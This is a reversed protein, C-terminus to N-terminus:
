SACPTISAAPCRRRWTRPGPPTRPSSRPDVHAKAGAAVADHIQARVFGAAAPRVLHALDGPTDSGGAQYGRASSRGEVFRDYVDRHVYIREIACCSQGSNFFAGDALNEICSGSRRRPARLGSGQRRAGPRSCFAAHRRRRCATDAPVSGTFSVFDVEGSDIIGAAADHSLHLHQFVGAPLGGAAFAEAMREACLPTEGLAEPDGANGAMLAPVVGNVATLYPYNWPAIVFAVGLPM